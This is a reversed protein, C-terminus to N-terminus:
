LRTNLWTFALAAANLALFAVMIGAFLFAGQLKQRRYSPSSVVSVMGLLPRNLVERMARGDHFTPRIQSILFSTAIGAALAAMLVGFLLGLRNPAVPNPTVRPPDIIRFEAVGADELKETLSVTERRAVLSSYQGKLIDYDRNLQSFETDIKPLTNAAAQLQGMRAQYENLRARVAVVNSESENAAVKLQQGVPDGTLTAVQSPRNAAAAAAAASAAAAAKRRVEIERDREQMLQAISKRLLVVDPHLETYRRLLEDLQRRLDSIRADLEPVTIVVPAAPAPADVTRPPPPVHESLQQKIGALTQEAVKLEIRTDKIQEELQGMQTIYDRGSTGLLAMNKIRFEQVRREADRLKSEYDQIQQDVFRRASDAGMRNGGMSQEIFTSVAAQVVDRAKRKDNYRYAITYLNDGGAAGIRLSGAMVDVLAAASSGSSTDLDAKRIIKELNPRSLLIRSLISVQYSPDTNIAMGAMLPRLLSQTDVYVRASAEYQDPLRFVVVAGIIAVLWAVGLGIWRRHWIGRLYGLVQAILDQM